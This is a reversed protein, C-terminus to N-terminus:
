SKKTKSKRSKRKSKNKKPKIKLTKMRKKVLHKLYKDYGKPKKENLVSKMWPNDGLMHKQECKKNHDMDNKNYSGDSNIRVRRRKCTGKKSKSKGAKYNRKRIQKKTSPM